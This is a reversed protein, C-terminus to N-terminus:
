VRTPPLISSPQGIEWYIDNVHRPRQKVQHVSPQSAVGPEQSYVNAKLQDRVHQKKERVSRSLADLVQLQPYCAEMLTEISSETVTPITPASVTKAASSSNRRRQCLCYLSVLIIASGLATALVVTLILYLFCHEELSQHM